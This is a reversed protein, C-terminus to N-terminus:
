AQYSEQRLLEEMLGPNAKLYEPNNRRYYELRDEMRELRTEFKNLDDRRATEYAMRKDMNLLQEPSPAPKYTLLLMELTEKGMTEGIRTFFSRQGGLIRRQRVAEEVVKQVNEGYQKRRSDILTNFSAVDKRALSALVNKEEFSIMGMRLAQKVESDTKDDILMSVTDLIDEESAAPSLGLM